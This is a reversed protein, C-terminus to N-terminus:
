EQAPSNQVPWDVGDLWHVQIGDICGNGSTSIWTASTSASMRGARAPEMFGIGNADFTGGPALKTALSEKALCAGSIKIKEAGSARDPPCRAAPTRPRDRLRTATYNLVSSM